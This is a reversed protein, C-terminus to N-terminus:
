HVSRLHIHTATESSWDGLQQPKIIIIAAKASKLLRKPKHAFFYSIESFCIEPVVQIGRTDCSAFRLDEHNIRIGGDIFLGATAQCGCVKSRHSLYDALYQRANGTCDRIAYEFAYNIDIDDMWRKFRLGQKKGIIDRHPVGHATDYRTIDIWEGELYVLLVVSFITISGRVTTRDVLM